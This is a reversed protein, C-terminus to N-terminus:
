SPSKTTSAFATSSPCPACELGEADRRLSTWYDTTSEDGLVTVAREIRANFRRTSEDAGPLLPAGFVVRTRGLRPRKMGKGFIAGTGDIFVPVIPAGTRSSLYAAGGKVQEQFQLIM